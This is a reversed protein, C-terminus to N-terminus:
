GHEPVARRTALYRNALLIEVLVLLAALWLVLAGLPRPIFSEAAAIASTAAPTPTREQLGQWRALYAPALPQLDSERRDTNVALWRTGNAHRIEYFGLATPVLRDTNQMAALDLVREGSPDFIQGGASGTLGTTVATGVTASQAEGDHASLYRTTQAIFQVFAPHIALDNWARDIPATLILMRGAGLTREVLLPAGDDYAILVRDDGDIRVPRQRFFRV